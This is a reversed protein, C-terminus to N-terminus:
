EGGEPLLGIEGPKAAPLPRKANWESWERARDESMTYDDICGGDECDPCLHIMYYGSEWDGDEETPLDEIPWEGNCESCRARDPQPEGDDKTSTIEARLRESLGM